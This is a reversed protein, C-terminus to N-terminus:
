GQIIIQSSIVTIWHRKNAALHAARNTHPGIDGDWPNVNTNPDIFNYTNWLDHTTPPSPWYQLLDDCINHNDKTFLVCAALKQESHTIRYYKIAKIQLVKTIGQIESKRVFLRRDTMIIYQKSFDICKWWLTPYHYERFLLTPFPSFIFTSSFM